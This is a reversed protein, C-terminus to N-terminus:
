CASAKGSPLSRHPNADFWREYRLQSNYQREFSRYQGGGLKYVRVRQWRALDSIRVEYRRPQTDDDVVLYLCSDYEREVVGSICQAGHEGCTLAFDLKRLMEPYRYDDEPCRIQPLGGETFTVASCDGRVARVDPNTNCLPARTADFHSCVPYRDQNYRQDTQVPAAFLPDPRGAWFLAISAVLVALVFPIKLM